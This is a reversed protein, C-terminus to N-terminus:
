QGIWYRCSGARPHTGSVRHTVTLHDLRNPMDIHLVHACACAAQQKCSSSLFLFCPLFFSGSMSLVRNRRRIRERFGIQLPGSAARLGLGQNCLGSDRVGTKPAPRRRLALLSNSLDLDM